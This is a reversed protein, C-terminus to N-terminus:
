TQKTRGGTCKPICRGESLEEDEPCKCQDTGDKEMLEQLVVVNVMTKGHSNEQVYLSVYAKLLNKVKLAPPATVGSPQRVEGENCKTTCNGNFREQGAPCLSCVPGCKDIVYKGAVTTGCAEIIQDEEEPKREYLPNESDLSKEYFLLAYNNEGSTKKMVIKEISNLSGPTFSELVDNPSKKIKLETTTSDYLTKGTTKDTESLPYNKLTEACVSNNKFWGIIRQKDNLIRMIKETESSKKISRLVLNNVTGIVILSIVGGILAGVLGFGKQNLHFKKQQFCSSSQLISNTNTNNM